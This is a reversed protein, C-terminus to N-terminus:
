DELSIRGSKISFSKNLADFADDCADEDLSVTVTTYQKTKKDTIFAVLTKAEMNFASMLIFHIFIEKNMLDNDYLVKHLYDKNLNDTMEATKEELVAYITKM